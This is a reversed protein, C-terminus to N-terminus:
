FPMHDPDPASREGTELCKIKLMDEQDLSFDFINFNEEMRSRNVSKPITVIGRQYNWRLTIQAISKNYKKAIEALLPVTFMKGEMFPSHATIAINHQHCYSITEEQQLYPHCEIQNIAPSISEGEIFDTIHHPKFNSIGIARVLKQEYLYQLAQFCERSNPKPWHIIYLDLYDLSLEKLTKHCAQITNQYSMDTIWVKSTIFIEDRNVGSNKIGQGVSKQNDYASACDIHRYGCSLADAVTKSTTSGNPIQYTGFGIVPIETGNNLTLTKQNYKKM